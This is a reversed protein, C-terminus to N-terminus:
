VDQFVPLAALERIAIRVAELAAEHPLDALMDESLLVHIVALLARNADAFSRMNAHLTRILDPTGAVRAALERTDIYGFGDDDGEGYYLTRGHSRGAHWHQRLWWAILPEAPDLDPHPLPM